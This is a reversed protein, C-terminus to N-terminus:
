RRGRILERTLLWAFQSNTYLYRRWLRGPEQSLRYFWELGSRQMWRPARRTLGAIVDISGGVGMTFPIQLEPAYRSMWHEKQPSSM